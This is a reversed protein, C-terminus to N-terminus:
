VSSGAEEEEDSAPVYYSIEEAGPEKKVKSAQRANNLAPYEELIDILQRDDQDSRCGIEWHDFRRNLAQSLKPDAEFLEDVTYQSTVIVFLPRIKRSSGKLEAMFPYVDGWIKLRNSLSKGGSYDIDDIIVVRESNYNCWWKTTNKEYFPEQIDEALKRALYSKGVGSDGHIWIGVPFGDPLREQSNYIQSQAYHNIDHMNKRYKCYIDDPIDGFNGVAANRRAAAWKRKHTKNGEEHQEAPREGHETFKGDKSCYKINHEVTGRAGEYHAQPDLDRKLRTIDWRNKLFVFGQLHEKKTKPCIEIGYCLYEMTQDNFEPPHMNFQTFCWKKGRYGRKNVEAM